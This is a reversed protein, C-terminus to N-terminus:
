PLLQHLTKQPTPDWKKRTLDVKASCRANLKFQQLIYTSQGQYLMSSVKISRNTTTSRKCLSM